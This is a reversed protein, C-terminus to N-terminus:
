KFINQTESLIGKSIRRHLESNFGSNIDRPHTLHFLANKSRFIKLGYNMFRIYRDFDDDGWGYYLENEGGIEIFKDKNMIVAGGVLIHESLRNMKEINRKLIGINNSKIYLKRIIDSTDFCLGNYPLSLDAHLDRVQKVCELIAEAEVIVDADWISVIPTNLQNIMRNFYWTKYLVPDNDEIFEYRAKKNLIKRLIGNCYKDAELVYINTNFFSLLSDTVAKVNEIREISDARLLIMFTVDTINSRM